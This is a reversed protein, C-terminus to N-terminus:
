GKYNKILVETSRSGVGHNHRGATYKMKIYRCNFDDNFRSAFWGDKITGIPPAWGQPLHERNSLTVLCGSNHADNLFDCLRAQDTDSFVGASNYKAFSLRYPPDAYFWNGKGFFSVTNEFDGSMLICSDIFEAYSKLKSVDFLSGKPKWTMLGAPSAYRFNFNESTQWIGNFGTQLMYMLAAAQEVPSLTNPYLAYRNRLDYYYKKRDEITKYAIYGNNVHKLYEKEFNVYNAKKMCQYMTILESCGENLVINTNPYNKKVWMSVCGTGAFMDVFLDPDTEPFFGSFTYKKFMRNKSGAWKFPPRDPRLITKDTQGSNTQTTKLYDWTKM